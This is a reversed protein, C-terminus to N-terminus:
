AARAPKNLWGKLHAEITEEAMLKDQRFTRVHKNDQSSM